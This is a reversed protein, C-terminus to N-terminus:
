VRDFRAKGPAEQKLAGGGGGVESPGESGLPSRREWAVLEQLLM